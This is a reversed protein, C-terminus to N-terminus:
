SIDASKNIKMNMDGVSIGDIKELSDDRDLMYYWNMRGIEKLVYIVGEAEYPM